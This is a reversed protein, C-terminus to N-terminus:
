LERSLEITLNQFFCIANEFSAKDGSMLKQFIDKDSYFAEYYRNSRTDQLGDNSRLPDTGHSYPEKLRNGTLQLYHRSAQTTSLLTESPIKGTKDNKLALQHPIGKELYSIKSINNFYNASFIRLM